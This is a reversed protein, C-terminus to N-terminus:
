KKRGRLRTVLIREGFLAYRAHNLFQTRLEVPDDAIARCADLTTGSKGHSEGIVATM